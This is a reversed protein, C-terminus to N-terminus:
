VEGELARGALAECSHLPAHWNHATLAYIHRANCRHDTCSRVDSEPEIQSVFVSHRTYQKAKPKNANYDEGGYDERCVSKKDSLVTRKDPVHDPERKPDENCRQAIDTKSKKSVREQLLSVLATSTCVPDSLM